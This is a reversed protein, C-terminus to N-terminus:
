PNVFGMRSPPWIVLWARGVIREPPLPGEFRSDYSDVSDDGLVFYGEGCQALRGEGLRGYPLYEIRELPAPRTERVGDIVVGGEEIAVTEGPLGVVRKMVRLGERNHFAVVEWRRPPRLALSAKETLVWDGEEACEGQLTPAMSGSAIVTVDFFLCYTVFFVGVIAFGRETVRLVRRALRRWDVVRAGESSM